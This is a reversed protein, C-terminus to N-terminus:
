LDFSDASRSHKSCFRKALSLDISQVVSRSGVIEENTKEMNAVFPLIKENGKHM